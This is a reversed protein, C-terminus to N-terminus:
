LKGYEPQRTGSRNKSRCESHIKGSTAQVPTTMKQTPMEEVEVVQKGGCGLFLLTSCIIVLVLTPM